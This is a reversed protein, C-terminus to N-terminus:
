GRTWAPGADGRLLAALSREALAYYGDTVQVFDAARVTILAPAGGNAQMELGEVVEIAGRFLAAAAEIPITVLATVEDPDPTFAALPLSTVTAFIEQLERDRVGAQHEDARRRRGLHVVDEPKIELGIEEHAERLGDLIAEGARLHGTVAVDLAGPWTDKAPSRRQFLLCPSRAAGAVGSGDRLAVWIHLSRHWDGDRHVDRRAKSVGLPAGDRTCLDFREDPDQAAMAPRRLM